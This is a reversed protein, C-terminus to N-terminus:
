AAVQAKQRKRTRAEFFSFIAAILLLVGGPIGFASVSIVVWVAAVLMCVWAAGPRGIALIAGVLGLISALWASVALGGVGGAGHAHIAGGIAGVGGAFLAAVFAAISGLIGIVLAAVKM